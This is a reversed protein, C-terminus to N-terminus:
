LPSTLYRDTMGAKTDARLGSDAAVVLAGVTGTPDALEPPRLSAATAPLAPTARDHVGANELYGALGRM